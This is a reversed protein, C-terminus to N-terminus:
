IPNVLRAKALARLLLAEDTPNDEVILVARRNV